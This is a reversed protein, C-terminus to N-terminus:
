SNEQELEAWREYCAELETETDKLSATLDSVQDPAGQYLSPKILLAQLREM